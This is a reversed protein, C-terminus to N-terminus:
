KQKLVLHYPVLGDDLSVVRIYEEMFYVPNESCKQYEIIQEKTFEEPTNVKKLNPNGLYADSM